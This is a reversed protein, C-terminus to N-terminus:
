STRVLEQCILINKFGQTPRLVNSPSSPVISDKAPLPTFEERISTTTCKQWIKPITLQTSSALPISGGVQPKCFRQEVSQAVGARRIYPGDYWLIFCEVLMSYM